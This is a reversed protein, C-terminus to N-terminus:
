AATKGKKLHVIKAGTQWADLCDAWHQMMRRREAEYEAQHVYAALVQNRERHSLQRDIVEKRFGMEALASAATARFGHGSVEAAGYGMARLASNITGDSIPRRPDNRNPWVLDHGGSYDQLQRFVEVAQRSLPVLHAEKMKMGVLGRLRDREAPVIWTSTELDLEQWRAGRLEGPRLFTLLALRVALKVPLSIRAASLRIFLEPLERAPLSARHEVRATKLTKELGVVPNEAERLGSAIAFHFVDAARQRVRKLTELAGRAEVKRLMALVEPPRIEDIPRKGIVPFVDVELSRIIKEAYTPVLSPKQKAFWLRAVAEFSNAGAMRKAAAEAKRKEGPDVGQSLLHRAAAALSRAEKLSVQPYKGIALLKEKGGIRYKLRWLKGGAPTVYLFMGQSDALKVPKDIPRATRVSVDTLPM